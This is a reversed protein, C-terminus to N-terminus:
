VKFGVTEGPAASLKDAYGCVYPVTLSRHPPIGGLVFRSPRVSSVGSLPRQPSRQCGAWYSASADRPAEVRASPTRSLPPRSERLRRILLCFRLNPNDTRTTEGRTDMLGPSNTTGEGWSTRYTRTTM